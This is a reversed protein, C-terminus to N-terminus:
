ATVAGPLAAQVADTDESTSNTLVIRFEVAEGNFSIVEIDGANVGDLSPALM